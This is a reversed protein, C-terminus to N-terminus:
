PNAHAAVESRWTTYTLGGVRRKHMAGDITLRFVDGTAPDDGCAEAVQRRLREDGVPAVTGRLFFEEDDFADDEFPKPWSHLAFRTDRRLDACKPTRRLVFAYLEGDLLVPSIPHVRPGGDRRVTALYALGAKGEALLFLPLAAAALDPRERAFTRWTV